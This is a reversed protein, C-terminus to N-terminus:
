DVVVNTLTSIVGDIKQIKAFVLDGLVKPDAVEAYVVIDFPGTVSHAMKVGKIKKVTKTIGRTKGPSTEILIYASITM